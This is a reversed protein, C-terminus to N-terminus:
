LRHLVTLFVAREVPFEFHRGALLRDLVHRCGTEQWLREFLLAPGIHQTSIRPLRGEAHASLLLLTQSFRAGSLLLADLQGDQLLQDLRGLTALVQQRAQGDEWRNEVIQVYTRSGSKKSRFFM